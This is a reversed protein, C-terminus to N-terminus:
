SGGIGLLEELDDHNDTFTLALVGKVVQSPGGNHLLQLPDLAVARRCEAASASNRRSDM